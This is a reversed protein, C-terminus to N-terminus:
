GGKAARILPLCAKTIRLTGVLNVNMVDKYTDLSLLEIDGFASIGANNVLAWLGLVSQLPFFIFLSKQFLSVKYSFFVCM